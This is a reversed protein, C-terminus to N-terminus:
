RAEQHERWRRCQDQLAGCRQRENSSRLVRSLTHPVLSDVRAVRKGPWTSSLNQTTVKSCISMGLEKHTIQLGSDLLFMRAKSLDAHEYTVFATKLLRIPGSAM